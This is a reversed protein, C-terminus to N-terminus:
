MPRPPIGTSCNATVLRALHMAISVSLTDVNGDPSYVSAVILQSNLDAVTLMRYRM